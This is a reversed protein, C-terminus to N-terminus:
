SYTGPNFKLPIKLESLINLLDRNTAQEKRNWNKSDCLIAQYDAIGSQHRLLHEVTIDSYPFEKIIEYVKTEYTLMRKEVLQVIALATFQKTNSALEFITNGNLTRKTIFNSFGYNGTFIISENKSYAVNGNFGKSAHQM